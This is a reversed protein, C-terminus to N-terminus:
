QLTVKSDAYITEQDQAFTVVIKHREEAAVEKAMADALANNFGSSIANLLSPITSDASRAPQVRM